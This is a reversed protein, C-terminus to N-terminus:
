GRVALLKWSGPVGKLEHEGHDDFEIGSGAVLDRVTGSVLVEGPGAMSGVRAAIHVALGALDEGRVECEGSHLGARVEIGLPQLARIMAQACRIARAPGDFSAVLGDGTTKVERGRYVELQERMLRDHDDLVHRWVEDGVDALHSTSGVIDTFLITTLVRDVSAPPYNGTLFQEIHAPTDAYSLQSFGIASGPREILRADAIHEALYRGHSLPVIESATAQLVLTPAQVLPLADRVDVDLITRWLAKAAKPTLAIRYQRALLEVLSSDHAVDPAVVKVLEPTGWESGLLEVAAAATAETLGIPYDSDEVLRASTNGLILASVREPHTAAFLVAIPGADAEAYVAAHESGVADLVAQLDEAAQEWTPIANLPVPDSSGTGRRDFLVLRSFTALRDFFPAAWDWLLEIHSGLGYFLVLDLPGDGVVQYAVDADGVSAYRTKPYRNTRAMSSLRTSLAWHRRYRGV